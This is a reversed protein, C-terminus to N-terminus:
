SAYVLRVQFVDEQGDVGSMSALAMTSSKDGRKGDGVDKYSVGFTGQPRGSATGKYSGCM